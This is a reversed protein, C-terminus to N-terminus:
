WFKYTNIMNILRRPRFASHWKDEEMIDGKLCKIWTEFQYTIEKWDDIAIRSEFKYKNAAPSYTVIFSDDYAVPCMRFYFKTKRFCIITSYLEDSKVFLEERFEFQNPSLQFFQIIDFMENKQSKLLKM